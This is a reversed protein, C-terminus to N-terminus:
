GVAEGVLDGGRRQRARAAKGMPLEGEATQVKGDRAESECDGVLKKSDAIQSKSNAIREEFADL